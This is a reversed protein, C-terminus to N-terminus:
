VRGKTGVNEYEPNGLMNFKRYAKMKWWKAEMLLEKNKAEMRAIQDKAETLQVQLHEARTFQEEAEKKALNLQHGLAWNKTTM